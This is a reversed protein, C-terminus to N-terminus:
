DSLIVARYREAPDECAPDIIIGVPTLVHGSAGITDDLLSGISMYFSCADPRSRDLRELQVIYGVDETMDYLTQAAPSYFQKLVGDTPDNPNPLKADNSVSPFYYEGTFFWNVGAFPESGRDSFKRNFFEFVKDESTFCEGTLPDTLKQPWGSLWLANSAAAAWCHNADYGKWPMAWCDWKEADVFSTQVLKLPTLDTESYNETIAAM